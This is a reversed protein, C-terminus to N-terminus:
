ILSSFLGLIKLLMNCWSIHCPDRIYWDPCCILNIGFLNFNGFKAFIMYLLSCRLTRLGRRDNELWSVHLRRRCGTGGRSQCGRRLISTSGCHAEELEVGAVSPNPHQRWVPELALWPTWSSRRGARRSAHNSPLDEALKIYM